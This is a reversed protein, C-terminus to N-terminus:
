PLKPMVGSLGAEPLRKPRLRPVFGACSREGRDEREIGLWRRRAVLCTHQTQAAFLPQCAPTPERM